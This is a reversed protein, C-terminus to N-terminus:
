RRDRLAYYVLTLIAWAFFGILMITALLLWRDPATSSQALTPEEYTALYVQKHSAETVAGDYSALATLYAKEAFEQDVRLREYDAVMQAYGTKSPESNVAVKSQEEDLKAQVIDVKRQVAIVRPDGAGAGSETLIQLEVQASVLQQTLSGLVQSVAGLDTQPDVIGNRARFATMAARADQLKAQAQDLTEKAYRTTDTRAVAALRNIMDSSESLVARAVRQADEAAFAHVTLQMLGTTNDYDVVVMRSWYDVLDEITGTPDYRFYPDGEPKSYIAKLDLDRDLKEVLQQSSIFNQLIDMDKSSTTTGGGFAGLFDFPSAPAETRIAFGATSVYQDVAFRWLYVGSVLGPLVVLLFALLLVGFHRTRFRAPAATPAVAEGPVDSLARGPAVVTGAARANRGAPNGGPGTARERIPLPVPQAGRAGAPMGGARPTGAPRAAARGAKAEAQASAVGGKLAHTLAPAAPAGPEVPEASDVDPAATQTPGPIKSTM